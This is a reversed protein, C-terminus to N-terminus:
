GTVPVMAGPWVTSKVTSVISSETAPSLTVTCPSPCARRYHHPSPTFPHTSTRRTRHPPLDPIAADCTVSILLLIVGRRM